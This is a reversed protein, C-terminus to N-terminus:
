SVCKKNIWTTTMAPRAALSKPLIQIFRQSLANQWHAKSRLSPIKYVQILQNLFRQQRIAIKLDM